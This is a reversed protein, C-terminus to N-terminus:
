KEGRFRELYFWLVPPLNGNSVGSGSSQQASASGAFFGLCAISASALVYGFFDFRIAL